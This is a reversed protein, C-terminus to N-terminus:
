SEEWHPLDASAIYQNFSDCWITLAGAAVFAAEELVYVQSGTFSKLKYLRQREQDSLFDEEDEIGGRTNLYLWFNPGPGTEFDGQLEVLIAGDQRYFKIGGRGWHGADQGRSDQRFVAEGLLLVDGAREAVTENVPPPPFLFPFAVLMGGAGAVVGLIGGLVFFLLTKKM